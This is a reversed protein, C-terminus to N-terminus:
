DTAGEDDPGVEVTCTDDHMYRHVTTFVRCVEHLSGIMGEAHEDCALHTHLHPNPEYIPQIALVCAVEPCVVEDTGASVTASATCRADGALFERVTDTFQQDASM